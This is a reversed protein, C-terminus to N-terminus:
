KRLMAPRRQPAFGDSDKKEDEFENSDDLDFELELMRLDENDEDDNEFKGINGISHLNKLPFKIKLFIVTLRTINM